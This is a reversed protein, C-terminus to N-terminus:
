SLVVRGSGHCPFLVRESACKLTAAMSGCELVHPDVDKCEARPCLCCTYCAHHLPCSHGDKHLELRSTQGEAASIARPATMEDSRSRARRPRPARRCGGSSM